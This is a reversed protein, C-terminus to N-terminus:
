VTITEYKDDEALFNMLKYCELKILQRYDIKLDKYNFKKTIVKNYEEFIKNRADEKISVFDDKEQFDDSKIIEKNILMFILKDAILPRFIQSIDLYSSFRREGISNLYNMTLSLKTKYLESLVTTYLLANVFSTLTSISKESLEGKGERSDQIFIKDWCSYYTKSINRELLILDQINDCIKIKESLFKIEMLEMELNKCKNNYYSVNEIINNSMEKMIERIMKMRKTKNLFSQIQRAVLCKSTKNEKPYFSGTYHGYDNFYHVPIRLKSLYDLCAGNVMVDELVYIEEVGKVNYDRHEKELSTLRINKDKKSLTGKSFLYYNRGM